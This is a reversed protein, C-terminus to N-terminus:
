EVECSSKLLNVLQMILAKQELRFRVAQMLRAQNCGMPMGKMQGAGSASKSLASILAVDQQMNTPLSALLSQGQSIWNQAASMHQQKPLAPGYNQVEAEGPVAEGQPPNTGSRPQLERASSGRAPHTVWSNNLPWGSQTTYSASNVGAKRLASSDQGQQQLVDRISTFAAELRNSAAASSAPTGKSASSALLQDQLKQKAAQLRSLDLPPLQM